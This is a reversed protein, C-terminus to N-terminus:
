RPNRREKENHERERQNPETLQHYCDSCVHLTHEAGTIAYYYCLYTRDCLDCDVITRTVTESRISM